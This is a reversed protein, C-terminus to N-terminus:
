YQNEIIVSCLKFNEKIDKVEKALCSIITEDPYSLNNGIHMTLEGMECNVLQQAIAKWNNMADTLLFVSSHGKLKEMFNFEKGHVSGLFAHEYGLGVKAYMYQFSSIGPLLEINRDSFEQKVYRRLSHFGVDGSVLIVVQKGENADIDKKLQSLRGKFVLGPKSYESFIELHREGGILLDANKVRQFVIPLILDACGPGIGCICLSSKNHEM